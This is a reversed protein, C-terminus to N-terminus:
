EYHLDFTVPQRVNRLKVSGGDFSDLLEGAVSVKRIPKGEPHRVFVQIQRPPTRPPPTLRITVRGQKVASDMTYSLKGFATPADLVEIRGGHKFWHQPAAQALLLRDGDERVLMFRLLRLQQTGSRLHPLTRANAGTRIDTCEVGSYTSRSMGYAMSAYLGLIAKKPQNRKLMQLWYGYSFAHDILDYFSCM